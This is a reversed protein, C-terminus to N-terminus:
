LEGPREDIEQVINFRLADQVGLSVKQQCFNAKEFWRDDFAKESFFYDYFEPAMGYVLHNEQMYRMTSETTVDIFDNLDQLCQGSYEEYNPGCERELIMRVFPGTGTCHYFLLGEPGAYRRVGAQFVLTCSSACIAQPRMWTTLGRDRVLEGIKEAVGTSGGPSHLSLSRIQPNEKLTKFVRHGIRGEIYLTEKFLFCNEETSVERTQQPLDAKESILDCTEPLEAFAVSSLGLVLAVFILNV